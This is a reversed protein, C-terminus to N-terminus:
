RRDSELTKNRPFYRLVFLQGCKACIVRTTEYPVETVNQCFPCKAQKTSPLPPTGIDQLLFILDMVGKLVDLGKNTVVVDWTHPNLGTPDVSSTSVAVTPTTTEDLGGQPCGVYGYLIGDLYYVAEVDKNFGFDYQILISNYGRPIVLYPLGTSGDILHASGGVPIPAVVTPNIYPVTVLDTPVLALGAIFQQYSFNIPFGAPSPVSGPQPM